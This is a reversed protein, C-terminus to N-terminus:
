HFITFHNRFIIVEGLSALKGRDKKEDTNEKKAM